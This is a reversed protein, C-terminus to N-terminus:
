VNLHEKLVHNRSNWFPFLKNVLVRDNFMSPKKGIIDNNKTVMHYISKHTHIYIHSNIM